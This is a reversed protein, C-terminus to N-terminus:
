NIGFGISQRVLDLLVPDDLDTGHSPLATTAHRTRADSMAGCDALASSGEM